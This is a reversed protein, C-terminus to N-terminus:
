SVGGYVGAIQPTRSLSYDATEETGSTTNSLPYNAASEKIPSLM